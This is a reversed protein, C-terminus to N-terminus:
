LKIRFDGHLFVFCHTWVNDAFITNNIKVSPKGTSPLFDTFVKRKTKNQILKHVFIHRRRNSHCVPQIFTLLYFATVIILCTVGNNDWWMSKWTLKTSLSLLRIQLKKSQQSYTLLTFTHYKKPPTIWEDAFLLNNANMLWLFFSLHANIHFAKM